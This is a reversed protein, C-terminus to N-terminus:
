DFWQNFRQLSFKCLSFYLNFNKILIDLEEGIGLKQPLSKTLDHIELQQSGSLIVKEAQLKLCSFVQYLKANYVVTGCQRRCPAVTTKTAKGGTKFSRREVSGANCQWQCSSDYFGM